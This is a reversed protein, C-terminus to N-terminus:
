FIRRHCPKDKSRTGDLWTAVGRNVLGDGYDGDLDIKPDYAWLQKGTEPDLAIIRNFATTLYLTGDVLLPTTEFGSRKRRGRAESIDGTHFTWAVKLQAVNERNIQSLPSFRMGGADHGYYPWSDTSVGPPSPVAAWALVAGTVLAATAYFLKARNNM